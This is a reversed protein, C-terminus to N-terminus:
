VSCRASFREDNLALRGFRSWEGVKRMIGIYGTILALHIYWFLAHSFINGDGRYYNITGDNGDHHLGCRQIRVPLAKVASSGNWYTEAFLIFGGRLGTAFIADTLLSTNKYEALMTRLALWTTSIHCRLHPGLLGGVCPFFCVKLIM